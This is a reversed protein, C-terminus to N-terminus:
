GLTFSWRLGVWRFHMPISGVSRANDCRGGTKFVTAGVLSVRVELYLYSQLIVDGRFCCFWRGAM